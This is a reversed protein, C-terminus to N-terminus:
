SLYGLLGVKSADGFTKYIVGASDLLELSCCCFRWASSGGSRKAPSAYRWAGLAEAGSNSCRDGPLSLVVALRWVREVV